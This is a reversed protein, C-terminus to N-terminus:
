VFCPCLESFVNIPLLTKWPNSYTRVGGLSGHSETKSILIESAINPMQQSKYLSAFLKM